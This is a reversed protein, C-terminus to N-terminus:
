SRADSSSVAVAGRFRRRLSALTLVVLQSSIFMVYMWVPYKDPLTHDLSCAALTFFVGICFVSLLKM